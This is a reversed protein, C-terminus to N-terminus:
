SRREALRRIKWRLLRLGMTIARAPHQGEHHYIVTVPVERWSLRHCAVEDIIESAHEMRDQTIRIAQAARRSFCRFGNHTDTVRLGSILRTFLVAGYLMIRKRRTLNIARGTFRSGLTVDVDGRAVPLVIAAIERALFQGDADYTVVREAGKKLAHAIGTRLAAGQGQNPHHVLVTAGAKRAVAATADKSGDDVVVIWPWGARKVDRIVAPLREEENYAAIIIATSSRVQSTIDARRKQKM